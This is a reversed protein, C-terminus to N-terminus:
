AGAGLGPVEQLLWNAYQALRVDAVSIPKVFFYVLLVRFIYKLQISYLRLFNMQNFYANDTNGIVWM